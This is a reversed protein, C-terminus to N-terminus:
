CTEIWEKFLEIDVVLKDEGVFQKDGFMHGNTPEFDVYNEARLIFKAVKIPDCPFDVDTPGNGLLENDYHLFGEIEYIGYAAHFYSFKGHISMDPAKKKDM